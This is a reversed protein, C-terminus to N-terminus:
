KKQIRFNGLRFDAKYNESPQFGFSLTLESDSSSIGNPAIESLPFRITQWKGSTNLGNGNGPNWKYSHDWDCNWAFEYGSGLLKNDEANLVEFALNYDDVDSIGLNPLNQSIALELWSWSKLTGSIHLHKTGLKSNCSTVQSDDEISVARDTRIFMEKTLETFLLGKTPRLPLNVSKQEGAVDTWNVTVTSNDKIGAPVKVGIGEASVYEVKVSQGNISVTSGTGEEDFGYYDFNEGMVKVVDGPATFENDLHSVTLEPFKVVFPYTATGQDTTYEILNQHELAFATPISVYAKTSATYTKSLDAEVTNFKLSKLNNLNKGVIIITQGPLGSNIPTTFQTDTGDYVATIEPAGMNPQSSPTQYDEDYGKDSSCGVICLLLCFLCSSLLINKINTMM